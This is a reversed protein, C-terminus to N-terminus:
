NDGGGQSVTIGTVLFPPIVTPAVGAAAATFYTIIKYHM